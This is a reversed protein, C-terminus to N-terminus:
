PDPVFGLVSDPFPDPDRWSHRIKPLVGMAVLTQQREYRIAVLQDPSSSSREFEVQEVPSYESRGHGTGLSAPPADAQAAAANSSAAVDASYLRSDGAAKERAPAPVAESNSKGSSWPQPEVRRERFLAVGIVGLDNPRGTRAAYSDGPDSFYFAATRNLDKRWGEVTVYGYAEIVYGSQATSATEGTVANVGDVSLVALLRQGTCNRIRVSYENGPQGAVYKRGRYRYIPLAESATRDYVDVSALADARSVAFPVAVAAIVTAATAAMLTRRAIPTSM